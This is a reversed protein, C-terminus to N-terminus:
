WPGCVSSVASLATAAGTTDFQASVIKGDPLTVTAQVSLSQAIRVAVQSSSATDWLGVANRKESPEWTVDPFAHPNGDIELDLPTVLIGPEAVPAEFVFFLETQKGQCRVFLSAASSTLSDETTYIRISGVGASPSGDADTKLTWGGYDQPSAPLRAAVADYCKLRGDDGGSVATCERVNERLLELAAQSTDPGIQAARPTVLEPPPLSPQTATTDQAFAALPLLVLATFCAATYLKHRNL